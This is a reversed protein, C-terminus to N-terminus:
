GIFCFPDRQKFVDQGHSYSVALCGGCIPKLSCNECEACGARYGQAQSSDYIESLTKEYINGIPSPFKRCAHVEGDPLVSFFNFAAGCGFGCCGGFLKKGQNKKVINILNDKLGLVHNGKAADLYKSLFQEYKQPSPLQLNAGEGVMSLRNFFFDDVKDRLFEGLPIIQDINDKTLTLMIMSSVGLEKLLKLFTMTRDFHGAGRIADNHAPLGELSVQYFRPKQIHLLPELQGRVAPNGLVAVMFGRDAAGQYLDVFDPYLLPNGGTFTVQAQVNRTLTFDRLQDLIALGQKLKMPSRKSRDYCHKCHLDCLQTIHWQLTFVNAILNEDEINDLKCFKGDPRKLKSQPSIIIGARIAEEFALDIEGVTSNGAAAAKVRDIGEVLIKLVLLDQETAVKMIISLTAYDKWVLVLEEGKEPESKKDFREPTLLPILNMWNLQLLQLTPNLTLEDSSEPTSTQVFRVDSYVEELQALEYIFSPLDMAEYNESLFHVFSQDEEMEFYKSEVAAWKEFGLLRCCGGYQTILDNDVSM